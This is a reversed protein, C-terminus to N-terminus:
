ASTIKVLNLLDKLTGSFDSYLETIVEQEQESVLDSPLYFLISNTRVLNKVSEDLILEVPLNHNSLLISRIMYENFNEWLFTLMETSLLKCSASKTALDFAEVRTHDTEALQELHNRLTQEQFNPHNFAREGFYQDGIFRALTPTQANKHKIIDIFYYHGVYYNQALEEITGATLNPNTVLNELLINNLYSRPILKQIVRQDPTTAALNYPKIRFLKYLFLKVLDM